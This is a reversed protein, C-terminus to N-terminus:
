AAREAIFFGAAVNKPTTSVFFLWRGILEGALALVLAAAAAFPAASTVASMLPLVVGGAMLLAIRLLFMTRLRYLLLSSSARNEASEDCTLWLLKAIQAVLQASAALAASVALASHLQLGAARVLLPGLLGATLFFETITYRSNWSPRAPVLYIRASCYIGVIGAFVAAAGVLPAGSSRFLLCAAYAAALHAFLGLALVERSLWSRHWAKVARYAYIPRGLHLASAALSVFAAALTLLVAPLLAPTHRFTALIWICLIAGVSMQTLALMFVLPWHSDELKAQLRDVRDINWPMDDPLTVRTTSLSDFSSPLGPADAASHDARWQAINVIEIEIASQPCAEVCAPADGDSLRNHCLDCKGVVGREPNFQPVGYSCNWTCYQCGICIDPNHEVVGTAEIKTYAEVPCGTLCSPELCHNCGMSLYLRQTDPFIGGEIEGVRRWHLDGPNGNQENCAVVCCKCGICKTMDFHFRYQEGPGPTREPILPRAAHSQPDAPGETLVYTM